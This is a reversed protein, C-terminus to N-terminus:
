QKGDKTSGGSFRRAISEAEKEGDEIARRKLEMCRALAPMASFKLAAIYAEEIKEVIAQRSLELEDRNSCLEIFRADEEPVKGVLRLQQRAKSIRSTLADIEGSLMQCNEWLSKSERIAFDKLLVKHSLPPSKIHTREVPNTEVIKEISCVDSADHWLNASRVYGEYVGFFFGSVLLCSMTIVCLSFPRNGM